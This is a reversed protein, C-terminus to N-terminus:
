VRRRACTNRRATMHEEACYGSGASVRPGPPATRPLAAIITTGAIRWGNPRTAPRTTFASHTRRIRAWLSLRPPWAVTANAATRRGHVLIRAGGILQLRERARPM